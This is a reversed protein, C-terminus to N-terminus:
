KIKSANPISSLDLTKLSPSCRSSVSGAPSPVTLRDDDYAANFQLMHHAPSRYSRDTASRASMWSTSNSVTETNQASSARLTNNSVSRCSPSAGASKVKRTIFPKPPQARHEFTSFTMSQCSSRSPPKLLGDVTVQLIAKASKPRRACAGCFRKTELVPARNYRSQAQMLIQDKERNRLIELQRNRLQRFLQTHYSKSNQLQNVAKKKEREFSAVKKEYSQQSISNRVLANRASLKNRTMAVPDAM